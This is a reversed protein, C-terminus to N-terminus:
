ILIPHVASAEGLKVQMWDARDMDIDSALMSCQMTSYSADQFATKTWHVSKVHYIRWSSAPLQFLYQARAYHFNFSKAM